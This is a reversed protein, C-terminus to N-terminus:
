FDGRLNETRRHSQLILRRFHLEDQFGHHGVWKASFPASVPLFPVKKTKQDPCRPYQSSSCKKERPTYGWRLVVITRLTKKFNRRRASHQPGRELREPDTLGALLRSKPPSAGWFYSVGLNKLISTRICFEIYIM